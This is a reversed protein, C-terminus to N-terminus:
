REAESPEIELGEWMRRMADREEELAELGDPLLRYHKRARGGREPVPESLWSEILGQRELRDLAAYVATVSVSRGAREEIERRVTVGYADDGLRALALLVYQETQNLSDTRSM